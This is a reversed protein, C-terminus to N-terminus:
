VRELRLTLSSATADSYVRFFNLNEVEQAWEDIDSESWLGPPDETEVTAQAVDVAYTFSLQLQEMHDYDGERDSLSFQRVLSWTVSSGLPTEDPFWESLCRDDTIHYGRPARVPMRAFQLFVNWGDHPAPRAATVGADDLMSRLVEKTRRLPIAAAGPDPPPTWHERRILGKKTAKSFEPGSMEGACVRHVVSLFTTRRPDDPSDLLTRARSLATADNQGGTLWHLLLSALHANEPDEEFLPMFVAMHARWSDMGEALRAPQEDVMTDVARLLRAEDYRHAETM